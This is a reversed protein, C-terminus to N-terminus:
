GKAIENSSVVQVQEVEKDSSFYQYGAYGLLLSIAAALSYWIYKNM